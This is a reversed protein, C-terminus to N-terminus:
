GLCPEGEVPYFDYLVTVAVKLSGLMELMVMVAQFLVGRQRHAEFVIESAMWADSIDVGQLVVGSHLCLSSLTFM